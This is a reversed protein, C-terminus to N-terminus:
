KSNIVIPLVQWYGNKRTGERKIFEAKQLYSFERKMTRLGLDMKYALEDITLTGDNRLCDLIFLQRETLEKTGDKTGDKTGNTAGNASLLPVNRPITVLTGGMFNEFTPEPLNAATFATCVKGIGRGWSEVFGAKYFVGAILHNRPNSLYTKSAKQRDFDAPLEGVNWLWIYNNFIKMQTHAGTYDRHVIANYVLERLADEPVELAEIRQLGEYHIPATLYKTRLTWMVKEAMQIINGEFEDQYGLDTGDDGFRGVRFRATVFFLQPNKGFLLVAANRMRGQKDMLGLNHLVTEPSDDIASPPMKGAEISRRIFYRVADPDIDTMDADQCIMNDWEGAMRNSLFQQLAAGNLEQLTSGSRLYYKGDCSIPQNSKEVRISIYEKEGENLIRIDPVLGTAQVAKNPLTVLLKKANEIGVVTGNDDIGIYLTGGDANAFGSIYHLYKDDWKQKYEINQTEM